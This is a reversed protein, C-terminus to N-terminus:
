DDMAFFNLASKQTICVVNRGRANKNEIIMKMIAARIKMVVGIRPTIALIESALLEGNLTVFAKKV